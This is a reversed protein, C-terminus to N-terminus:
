LWRIIYKRVRPSLKIVQLRDKDEQDFGGQLRFVAVFIIVGLAASVLTLPWSVPLFLIAPLLPIAFALSARTVKWFFPVPFKLGLTRRLAILAILRSGVSMSGMISVAIIVNWGLMAALVLLVGGLLPLTRSIVVLKYKEYVQLVGMPLSILAEMFTFFITLITVWVALTLNSPNLNADKSQQLFLLQVLDKSLLMAGLASPVLILIQLKSILSYADQLQESKGEAHIRSFLPTQVGTFPALLNKLLNKIFSYSLRILTVTLFENYFTFVLIAFTSDYLWASINFFYMLASYRIFRQWITQPQGTTVPRPDPPPESRDLPEQGTPELIDSSLSHLPDPTDALERERQAEEVAERSAVLARWGAIGVSIVTTILLALMVGYVELQFPWIILTLTLLPNLVTVIIDLLNTAKQKFFSYLVQTCIDYLGGLVLLVAVLGLYIRGQYGLSFWSVLPDALFTLGCILVALLALKIITINVLFRRLAGRGLQKEVQGVFRPLAREIGLDIFLGMTAQLSTVAALSVYANNPFQKVIVLSVFLQLAAKIPLFAVNWFLAEGARRGLSHTERPTTKAPTVDKPLSTKKTATAKISKM